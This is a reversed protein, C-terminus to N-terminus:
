ARTSLALATACRAPTQGGRGGYQAQPPPPACARAVIRVIRTQVAIAQQLLVHNEAALAALRRGVTLLPPSLKQQPPLQTLGALAAEKAPTLAVAAAFDLRELAENEQTLVDALHRALHLFQNNM